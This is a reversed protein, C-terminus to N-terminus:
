ECKQDKAGRTSYDAQALHARAVLALCDNQIYRVFFTRLDSVKVYGRKLVPPKPQTYNMPPQHWDQPILDPNWIVFFDDGDLDGGSLMSPVDRDGVSPFVVVNKLHRLAPVDVAEVVRIDGPHLSPNRGVICVGTVCHFKGDHPNPVQLFIQPLDEANKTTKGETTTIHGRLTATEDLCGLLFASQEVVVRAKEKLLKMSWIRWLDLITLVFPEQIDADMFGWCVLDKITLSTLNEDIFQGLLSAAAVRDKMAKEYSQVQQKALNLITETKVGLTTLITITQRNLTAVSYQAFRIIELGNFQAKFKEQSQRIHVELGKADPWVALMGKCGGMRFQFASPIEISDQGMEHVVMEALLKSIKGVGDSFCYGDLEIDETPVIHPVTVGRIERTTSFCQGIRAAYKAVNKIHSFHGMWDRIQDCSLHDTPCFFYVACERIQSNGFALFEYHRNGIKVGRKLTRYVRNFIEDGADSFISGRYLEDTFQVRLFRDQHSSYKRLVRNSSEVSPSSFYMTSPTVIIKRITMCYHPISPNPFYLAAEEHEFIEMPNWVRKGQDAFYELMWKARDKDLSRLRDIFAQTISYESFVGRSICVELQYHIEFTLPQADLISDLYMLSQSATVNTALNPVSARCFTSLLAPRSPVSGYHELVTISINYAHLAELVKDVPNRDNRIIFKFTTWRGINVFDPDEFDAQLTVPFDRPLQHNNLIATRRDWMDLTGWSTKGPAMENRAKRNKKSWFMPPLELPIVLATTGEEEQNIRFIQTLRAFEVMCKHHHINDDDEEKSPGDETQSAHLIDFFMTLKKKRLDVDIRVSDIVSKLVMMETEQLRSGFDMREARLTMKSDFWIDQNAPSRTLHSYREHPAKFSTLTVKASKGAGYNITYFESSWFNVEPPPEFRVKAFGDRQGNSGESIELLSINGHRAFSSYLEALSVASPLRRIKLTFEPWTRWPETEM